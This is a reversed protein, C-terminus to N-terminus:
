FFANIKCEHNFYASMDLNKQQAIVTDYHGTQSTKHGMMHLRM